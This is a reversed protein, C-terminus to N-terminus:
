APKYDFTDYISHYGQYIGPLLGEKGVRIYCINKSSEPLYHYSLCFICSDILYVEKAIKLLPIYSEFPLMELSKTINYYKHNIDYVTKSINIVIYNDNNLYKVIENLIMKSDKNSAQTHTIIVNLNEVNKLIENM